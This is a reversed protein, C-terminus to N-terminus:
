AAGQYETDAELGLARRQVDTEIRQDVSAEKGVPNQPRKKQGKGLEVGGREAHSSDKRRSRGGSGSGDRALAATLGRPEAAAALRRWPTVTM